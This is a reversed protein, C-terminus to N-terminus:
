VIWGGKLEIVGRAAKKDASDMQKKAIKLVTLMFARAESTIVEFNALTDRLEDYCNLDCAMQTHIELLSKEEINM